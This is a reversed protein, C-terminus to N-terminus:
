PVFFRGLSAGQASKNEILTRKVVVKNGGIRTDACNAVFDALEQCVHRDRCPMWSMLWHLDITEMLPFSPCDPTNQPLELDINRL